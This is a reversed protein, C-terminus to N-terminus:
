YDRVKAHSWTGTVKVDYYFIVTKCYFISRNRLRLLQIKDLYYTPLAGFFTMKYLQLIALWNFHTNM